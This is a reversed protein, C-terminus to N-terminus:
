EVDECKGGFRKLLALYLDVKAKGNEVINDDEGEIDLLKKIDIKDYNITTRYLVTNSTRDIVQDYYELNEYHKAIGRYADEYRTLTAQDDTIIKEQSILVNLIDDTYYVDYNLEVEINDGANAERTCTKHKQIGTKEVEQTADNNTINSSGDNIIPNPNQLKSKEEECATVVLLSLLLIIILSIKKKMIKKMM